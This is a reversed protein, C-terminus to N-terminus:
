VCGHVRVYLSSFKDLGCAVKDESGTSGQGETAPAYTHIIICESLLQNAATRRHLMSIPIEDEDDEYLVGELRKCSVSLRLWM